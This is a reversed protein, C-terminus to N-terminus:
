LKSAIKEGNERLQVRLAHLLAAYNKQSNESLQLRIPEQWPKQLNDINIFASAGQGVEIKRKFTGTLPPFQSSHEAFPFRNDNYVAEGIHIGNNTMWNEPEDYSMFAFAIINKHKVGGRQLSRMADRLSVETVAIDDVILPRCEDIPKSTQDHWFALEQRTQFDLQQRSLDILVHAKDEKYNEINEEQEVYQFRAKQFDSLNDYDSLRPKPPLTLFRERASKTPKKGSAVEKEWQDEADLELPYSARHTRPFAFFPTSIGLKQLIPKVAYSLVPASTAPFLVFNPRKKPPIKKLVDYLKQLGTQLIDEYYDPLMETQVINKAWNQRDSENDFHIDLNKDWSAFQEHFEESGKKAKELIANEDFYPHLPRIKRGDPLTLVKPPLQNLIERGIRPPIM